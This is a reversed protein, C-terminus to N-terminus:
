DSESSEGGNSIKFDNTLSERSASLQNAKKLGREEKHEPSEIRRKMGNGLVEQQGEKQVVQPEKFMEPLGSLDDEPKKGGLSTENGGAKAQEKRTKSQRRAENEQWRQRKRDERASIKAAAAEVQQREKEEKAKIAKEADEQREKRQKELFKRDKVVAAYSLTSGPQQSVQQADQEEGVVSVMKELEKRSVGGERCQRAEHSTSGCAFCCRLSGRYQLKWTMFDEASHGTGLAHIITPLEEQNRVLEVKVKNLEVKGYDGGPMRMREIRKVKGYREMAQQVLAVDTEPAVDMVTIMMSTEAMSEARVRIDQELGPWLVGAEGQRGMITLFSALCGEHEFTLIFRKGFNDISLYKFGGLIETRVGPEDKFVETDLWEVLESETPLTAFGAMDLCATNPRVELNVRPISPRGLGRGAGRGQNGSGGPPPGRGSGDVPPGRGGGNAPPGRGVGGAGRERAQEGAGGGGPQTKAKARRGWKTVVNWGGGSEAM